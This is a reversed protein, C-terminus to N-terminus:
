YPQAVSRPKLCGLGQTTRRKNVAGAALAQAGARAPLKHQTITYM